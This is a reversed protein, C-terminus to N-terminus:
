MDSSLAGNEGLYMQMIDRGRKHESRINAFYSIPFYIQRQMPDM